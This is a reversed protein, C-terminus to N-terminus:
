IVKAANKVLLEAAREDAYKRMTNEFRIKCRPNCWTAGGNLAAGYEMYEHIIEWITYIDAIALASIVTSGRGMADAKAIEFQKMTEPAINAKSRSMYKKIKYLSVMMVCDPMDQYYLEGNIQSM